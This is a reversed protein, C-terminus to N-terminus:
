TEKSSTSKRPRGRRRPPDPESLSVVGQDEDAPEPERIEVQNTTDGPDPASQEPLRDRIEALIDNQAALLDCMAAAYRQEPKHALPPPVDIM